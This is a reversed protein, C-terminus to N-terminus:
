LLKLSKIEKIIPYIKGAISFYGHKLLFQVTLKKINEKEKESLTEFLKELGSQYYKMTDIFKLKDISTYKLDTLNKRGINLDKTRWASLRIAKLLFIM